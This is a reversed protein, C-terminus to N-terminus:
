DCVRSALNRVAAALDIRQGRGEGQGRQDWRLYGRKNLWKITSDDFMGAFLASLVTWPDGTENRGLLGRGIATEVAPEHVSVTLRRFRSRYAVSAREEFLEGTIPLFCRANKGAEQATSKELQRKARHVASM